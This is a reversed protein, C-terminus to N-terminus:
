SSVKEDGYVELMIERLDEYFYWTGCPMHNTFGERDDELLMQRIMTASIPDENRDTIKVEVDLTDYWHTRAEESGEFIITPRVGCEKEVCEMVYEGWSSDDSPNERDPIGIITIDKNYWTLVRILLAREAFSLPNRKTRKEQSSGIAIILHECDNWADMVISGHGDHFPQFRGLFLGYKHKQRDRWELRGDPHIRYTSTVGCVEGVVEIYERTFSFTYFENMRVQERMYKEVENTTMNLGNEM